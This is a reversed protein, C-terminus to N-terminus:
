PAVQTGTFTLRFATTGGQTGTPADLDLMLELCYIASAGAALAASPSTTFSPIRGSPGSLAPACAGASAVPTLRVTLEDALSNTQATVASQTVAITLPTVGTNKLTIASVVSSGPGLKSADLGTIVANEANNVTLGTTGSSVTGGNAQASGSWLAFTGAGGITLVVAVTLALVGALVSRAPGRRVVTSARGEGRHRASSVPANM